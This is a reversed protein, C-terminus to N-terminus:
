RRDVVLQWAFVRCVGRVEFLKIGENENEELLVARDHGLLAGPEPRVRRLFLVIVGQAGDEVQFVPLLSPLLRNYRHALLRQIDFVPNPQAGEVLAIADDVYRTLALVHLKRGRAPPREHLFINARPRLGRVM